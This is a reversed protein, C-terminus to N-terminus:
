NVNWINQGSNYLFPDHVNTQRMWCMEMRSLLSVSFRADIVKESQKHKPQKEAWVWIWSLSLNNRTHRLCVPQNYKYYMKYHWRGGGFLGGGGGGFVGARLVAVGSGTEYKVIYNFCSMATRHSISHWQRWGSRSLTKQFWM